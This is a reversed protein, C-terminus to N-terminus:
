GKSPSEESTGNGRAKALVRILTELDSRTLHGLQAHHIELLDPALSQALDGGAPTIVVRIRRRDAPDSVRDVWGNAQLRDVLKTMDPSRTVMRAAIDQSPLGEPGAGAVIRLANYQPQSIGRERFLANLRRQLFDQTRTIELFAEQHLDM